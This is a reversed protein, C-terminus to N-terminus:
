YDTDMESRRRKLLGVFLLFGLAGMGLAVMFLNQGVFRAVEMGALKIGSPKVQQPAAPMATVQGPLPLDNVDAIPDREVPDISNKAQPPKQVAQAQPPLSGNAKADQPAPPVAPKANMDPKAAMEPKSVAQTDPIGAHNGGKDQNIQQNAGVKEQSAPAGAESPFLNLTMGIALKDPHSIKNTIAIETWSHEDGYEAKAIKSLSDGAKVQYTTPSVNRETWFSVMSTDSPAQPSAYKIIQGPKWNSTGGNWKVLDQSAQSNGLLTAAVTEASDGKRIFYYRNLVQNGSHAVHAPAQLLHSVTKKVLAPEATKQEEKSAEAGTVANNSATEEQATATADTAEPEKADTKVTDMTAPTPSTVETASKDGSSAGNSSDATPVEQPAAASADPSSATQAAADKSADPMLKAVSAQAGTDLNESSETSSSTSSAVQSADPSGSADAPASATDTNSATNSEPAATDASGSQESAAGERVGDWGAKSQEHSCAVVSLAAAIALSAIFSQTLTTKKIM